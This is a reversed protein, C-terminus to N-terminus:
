RKRRRNGRKIKNSERSKGWRRANTQKKMQTKRTNERTRM